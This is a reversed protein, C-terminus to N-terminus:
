SFLLLKWPSRMDRSRMANAADDDVIEKARRMREGDVDCVALVRADRFTLYRRLNWNIGHDGTGIFGVTIQNSPATAGLCRAPVLSPVAAAALGTRIFSRRSVRPM